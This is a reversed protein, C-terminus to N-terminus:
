IIRSPTGGDSPDSERTAGASIGGGFDGAGGRPLFGGLHASRGTQSLISPKGAPAHCGPFRSELAVGTAALGLGQLVIGRRISEGTAGLAMRIGIESTRRSVAYSIVGYLGLTVFLVAMLACAVAMTTYFRPADLTRRLRLTLPASAAYRFPRTWRQSGARLEPIISESPASTRVVVGGYALAMQGYPVYVTAVPRATLGRDHTDRIIGVIERANTGDWGM